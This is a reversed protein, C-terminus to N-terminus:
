SKRILIPNDKEWAALLVENKLQIVTIATGEGYKNDKKQHTKRM